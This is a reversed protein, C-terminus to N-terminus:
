RREDKWILKENKRNTFFDPCKGDGKGTFGGDPSCIINCNKDFLKSEIDCCYAPVYYVTKGNYEYQWISGPPNRVEEAQIKKIQEYICAPIDSSLGKKECGGLVSILITIILIITKM